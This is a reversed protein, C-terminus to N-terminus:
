GDLRAEVGECYSVIRGIWFSFAMEGKAKDGAEDTSIWWDLAPKTPLPCPDVGVVVSRSTACGALMTMTLLASLILWRSRLTWKM